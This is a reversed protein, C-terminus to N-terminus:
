WYTCWLLTLRYTKKSAVRSILATKVAVSKSYYCKKCNSSKSWLGAVRLSKVLCELNRRKKAHMQQVVTINILVDDWYKDFKKLLLRPCQFKNITHLTTTQCRKSAVLQSEWFLCWLTYHTINCPQLLLYSLHSVSRSKTISHLLFSNTTLMTPRSPLLVFPPRLAERAMNNRVPLWSSSWMCATVQSRCNNDNIWRPM